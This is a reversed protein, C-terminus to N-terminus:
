SPNHLALSQPRTDCTTMWVCRRNWTTGPLECRCGGWRPRCPGPWPLCRRGVAKERGMMSTGTRPSPRSVAPSTTRRPAAAAVPASRAIRNGQARHQSSRTRIGSQAQDRRTVSSIRARRRIQTVTGIPVCCFYEYKNVVHTSPLMIFMSFGSGFILFIFKVLLCYIM